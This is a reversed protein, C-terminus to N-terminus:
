ADNGKIRDAEAFGLAASLSTSSHGAGSCDYESEERNTFGSLGGPKRLSDFKEYRETLIKHTYSQHGVDFIIHDKPCDFVRHLAVSLEVVGLNSALHGGNKETTSIICDRIEACLSPIEADSLKKLDDPSNVRGLYKYEPKM